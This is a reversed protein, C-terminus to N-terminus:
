PRALGRLTVYCHGCAPPEIMLSMSVTSCLLSFGLFSWVSLNAVKCFMMLEQAAVRRGTISQRQARSRRRTCVKTGRRKKVELQGLSKRGELFAREAALFAGLFFDFGRMLM